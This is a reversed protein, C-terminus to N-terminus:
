KRRPGAAGRKGGGEQEALLAGLWQQLDALQPYEGPGLSGDFMAEHAAVVLPKMAGVLKAVAESRRRAAQPSAPQFLSGPAGWPTEEGTTSEAMMARRPVDGGYTPM